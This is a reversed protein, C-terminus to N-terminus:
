LKDINHYAMGIDSFKIMKLTIGVKKSCECLYDPEYAITNLGEKSIFRVGKRNVIRQIGKYECNKYYDDRINNVRLNTQYSCILFILGTKHLSDIITQTNSMNGFSNFPFFLLIKKYSSSVKNEQVIECINEASGVVMQYKLPSLECNLIKCKGEEIYRHVVDIGLYGKDEEICWNLYRGSMCGIEVLCNFCEKIKCLLAKEKKLYEQIEKPYNISEVLYDGNGSDYFDKISNM